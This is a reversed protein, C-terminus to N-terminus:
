DHIATKILKMRWQRGDPQVAQLVYMGASLGAGLLQYDGRKSIPFNRVAQGNLNFLTVKLPNTTTNHLTTFASFPNPAVTLFAELAPLHPNQVASFACVSDNLPLVTITIINGVVWNNCGDRNAERLYYRTEYLTDPQYDVGAAGNIIQWSPILGPLVVLEQWDYSLTGSGGTAPTGTIAMPRTGACITQNCCLSGADTVNDCGLASPQPLLTDPRIRAPCSASVCLYGTLVLLLTAYHKM